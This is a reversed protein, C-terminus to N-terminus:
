GLVEVGLGEFPSAISGVAGTRKAPQTLDVEVCAPQGDRDPPEQDELDVDVPKEDARGVFNPGEFLPYEANRKQGRLVVLKPETGPSIGASAPVAEALAPQPPAISAAPAAPAAVVPPPPPPPPAVPVAEIPTAEFAFPSPAEMPVAEIPIAEM